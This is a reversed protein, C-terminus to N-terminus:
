CGIKFSEPYKPDAQDLHVKGRTDKKFDLKNTISIRTSHQKLWSLGPNLKM